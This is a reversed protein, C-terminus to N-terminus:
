PVTGPQGWDMSETDKVVHDQVIWEDMWGGMMWGDM